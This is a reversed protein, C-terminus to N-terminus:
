SMAQILVYSGQSSIRFRTKGEHITITGNNVFAKASTGNVGRIPVTGFVPQSLMGNSTGMDFVLARDEATYVSQVNEPMSVELTVWTNGGRAYVGAAESLISDGIDSAQQLTAEDETAHTYRIFSYAVASILFLGVATIVLFEVSSQGKVGKKM